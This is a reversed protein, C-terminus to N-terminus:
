EFLEELIQLVGAKDHHPARLAIEKKVRDSANEMAYGYKVTKLMELDNDGDGFAMCQDMTLNWRKALLEIGHAKHYGPVIMDIAGHGSTVPTILNGVKGMLCEFVPNTKEVSVNVAFKLIDDDIDDFSTRQELKTYWHKMIQYYGKPYKKLVYGSKKGCLVYGMLGYAQDVEEISQLIQQVDEKDISVSFVEDKGDLVWAGNEAVFGIEDKIEEFFGALQYYQNGSAVVFHVGKEKMKQYVKMFRKKDYRQLSNLFTGDMDVAVLKIDMNSENRREVRM